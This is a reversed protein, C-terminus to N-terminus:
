QPGAGPAAPTWTAGGDATEFVTGDAATVRASQAGTASVAVLTATTPSKVAAWDGPVAFRLVLGREGVAWASGISPATGARLRGGRATYRARWTTGGDSSAELRRGEAIRWRLRGEPEAFSPLAAASGSALYGLAGPKAAEDKSTTAVVSETASGPVAENARREREAPAAAGGVVAEPMVPLPAANAAAPAAVADQRPAGARRNAQQRTPQSAQQNAQPSAIPGRPRAGAAATNTQLQVERAESPAPAAATPAAPTAVPEAQKAEAAKALDAFRDGEAARGSPAPAQSPANRKRADQDRPSVSAPRTPSAGRALNDVAKRDELRSRGPNAQAVTDAPAPPASATAPAEASAEPMSRAMSTAPQEGLRSVSWLTVAMLLGAAAAMWVFLQRRPFPIVAGRGAAPTEAEGAGPAAGASVEPALAAVLRRCAQCGTLHMDLRGV